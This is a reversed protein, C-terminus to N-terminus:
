NEAFPRALPEGVFIGQGPIRVSKTYAEILTEGEVYRRIVIAPDPFKLALACPEEVTGYSATAGAELWRLASMQKGGVLRGGGSTLHDAIAGPIFRNSTLRLVVRAGTFYFLVDDRGEIYDTELYRLAVWGGLEAVVAQFGSARVNRRKDTTRLLYGTGRPNTGDAAIGRDVLARAQEADTAALSMTPRWKLEDYPRNSGSDFYPSQRGLGCGKVCYSEDFGSAFATTISMCSTRYPMAWTLLYAQTNAPTKAAVDSKLQELEMPTVSAHAPNLRVQVLNKPPVHRRELYYEAAAV